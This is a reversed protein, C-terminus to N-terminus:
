ACSLSFIGVKKAKKGGGGGSKHDAVIGQALAAIKPALPQFDDLENLLKVLEETSIEKKFKLVLQSAEVDEPTDELLPIIAKANKTPSNTGVGDGGCISPGSSNNNEKCGTPAAAGSSTSTAVAPKTSTTETSTGAAAAETKLRDRVKTEIARKREEDISTQEENQEFFPSLGVAATSNGFGYTSLARLAARNQLDQTQPPTTLLKRSIYTNWNLSDCEATCTASM